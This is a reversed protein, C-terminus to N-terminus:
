PVSSEANGDSRREANRARDEKLVKPTYIGDCVDTSSSFVSLGPMLYRVSWYLVTSKEVSLIVIYSSPFDIAGGEVAWVAPGIQEYLTNNQLENPYFKLNKFEGKYTALIPM